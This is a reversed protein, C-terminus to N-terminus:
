TASPCSSCWAPEGASWVSWAVVSRARGAMDPPRGRRDGPRGHHPPDARAGPPRRPQPPGGARPGPHPVLCPGVGPRPLPVPPLLVRGGPRRRRPGGAPRAARGRHLPRRQAAVGPRLLRHGALAAAAAVGHVVDLLRRAPGPGRAGPARRRPRGGGRPLPGAPLAGPGTGGPRRRPGARRRLGRAAARGPHLGAEDAASGLLALPEARESRRVHARTGGPSRAPRDPARRAGRSPREPPHGAAGPDPGAPGPPGNGGRQAHLAARDRRPRRGVAVAGRGLAAAGAGGPQRRGRVLLQRALRGAGHLPDRRAAAM